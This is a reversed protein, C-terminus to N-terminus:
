ELRFQSGIIVPNEGDGKMIEEVVISDVGSQEEEGWVIFSYIDISYQKGTSTIVPSYGGEYNDYIYAENSGGGHSESELREYSVIDGEIYAFAEAIERDLLETQEAALFTERLSDTDRKVFADMVNSAQKEYIEKPMPEQNPFFRLVLIIPLIIFVLGIVTLVKPYKKNLGKRKHFRGTSIGIILLILGTLLMGSLIFFCVFLMGVLGLAFAAGM